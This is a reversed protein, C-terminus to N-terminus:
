AAKTRSGSPLRISATVRRGSSHAHVKAAVVFDAGMRADDLGHAAGKGGARGRRRRRRSSGCPRADGARSTRCARGRPRDPPWRCPRWRAPAPRSCAATPRSRSGDAAWIATSSALAGSNKVAPALSAQDVPRGALDIGLLQGRRQGLRDVADDMMRLGGRDADRLRRLAAGDVRGVLDGRDGRRRVAVPELQMHVARAEGIRQGEDAARRGLQRPLGADVHQAEAGGLVARHGRLHHHEEIRRRALELEAALAAAM